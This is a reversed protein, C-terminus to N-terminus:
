YFSLTLCEESGDLIVLVVLPLSDPLLDALRGLGTLLIGFFM